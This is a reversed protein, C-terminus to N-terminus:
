RCHERRRDHVGMRKARSCERYLHGENMSSPLSRTEARGERARRGRSLPRGTIRVAVADSAAAYRELAATEEPTADSLPSGREVFVKMLNLDEDSLDQLAARLIQERLNSRYHRDDEELRELRSAMRTFKRSIM